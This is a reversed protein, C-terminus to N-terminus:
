NLKKRFYSDSQPYHRDPHYLPIDIDDYLLKVKLALDSFLNM